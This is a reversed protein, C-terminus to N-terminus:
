EVWDVGYPVISPALAFAATGDGYNETIYNGFTVVWIGTNRRFLHMDTNSNCQYVPRNNYLTTQVTYLGDDCYAVRRSAVTTSIVVAGHGAYELLEPQDGVATSYMVTGSWEESPQNFDLYWRRNSRQYFSWTYGGGQKQYVPYDNVLGSHLTYEGNTLSSYPAGYIFISQHATLLTQPSGQQIRADDILDTSQLSPMPITKPEIDSSDGIEAANASCLLFFIPLFINFIDIKVKM